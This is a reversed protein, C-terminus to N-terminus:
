RRRRILALAGMGLLSLSTPEPVPINRITIIVGLDTGGAGGNGDGALSVANSGAKMDPYDGFVGAWETSGVILHIHATNSSNSGQKTKRLVFTALNGGSGGAGFDLGSPNKLITGGNGYSITNPHSTFNNTAYALSGTDVSVKGVVTETLFLDNAWSALNEDGADNQYAMTVNWACFAAGSNCTLNSSLDQGGPVQGTTGAGNGSAGTPVATMWVHTVAQAASASALVALMAVVRTAVKM